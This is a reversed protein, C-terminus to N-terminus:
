AVREIKCFAIQTEPTIQEISVKLLAAKLLILIHDTENRRVSIVLFPHEDFQKEAVHLELSKIVNLIHGMEDYSFDLRIRDTIYDETKVANNLAEEGAEKYAKILGKVGLKTGGFYRVVIVLVNTLGHSLIQNLIPRGATGSPEGDDNARFHNNDSGIKWAYCYHRAKPHEAKVSEMKPSFESETDMRFAYAIFKSGKEKYEGFSPSEITYFHDPSVAM